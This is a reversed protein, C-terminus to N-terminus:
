RAEQLVLWIFIGMMTIIVIDIIWQARFAANVDAFTAFGSELHLIIILEVIASVAGGTLVALIWKVASPIGEIVKKAESIKKGLKTSVFNERKEVALSEDYLITKRKM